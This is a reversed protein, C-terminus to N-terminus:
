EFELELDSPDLYDRCKSCFLDPNYYYEKAQTLIGTFLGQRHTCCIVLVGGPFEGLQKIECGMRIAKQVQEFEPKIVMAVYACTRIGRGSKQFDFLGEIELERDDPPKRVPRSISGSSIM